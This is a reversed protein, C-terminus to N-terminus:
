SIGPITALRAFIQRLRRTGGAYLPPLQADILGLAGDYGYKVFDKAIYPPSDITATGPVTNLVAVHNRISLHSKSLSLCEYVIRHSLLSSDRLAQMRFNKTTDMVLEFKGNLCGTAFEDLTSFLPKSRVPAIVSATLNQAYFFWIIDCFGM